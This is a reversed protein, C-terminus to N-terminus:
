ALDNVPQDVHIGTSLSPRVMMRGATGLSRGALAVGSVPTARIPLPLGRPSPISPGPLRVSKPMSIIRMMAGLSVPGFAGGVDLLGAVFFLDHAGVTGPRIRYLFAKLRKPITWSRPAGAALIFARLRGNRRCWLRKGFGFRVAHIPGPCPYGVMLAKESRGTAATRGASPRGRGARFGHVQLGCVARDGAIHREVGLFQGALLGNGRRASSRTGFPAPIESAWRLPM